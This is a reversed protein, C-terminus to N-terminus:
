VSQQMAPLIRIAGGEGCRQSELRKVRRAAVAECYLVVLEQEGVCKRAHLLINRGHVLAGDQVCHLSPAAGFVRGPGKREGDEGDSQDCQERPCFLQASCCGCTCSCAGRQVLSLKRGEVDLYSLVAGVVARAYVYM